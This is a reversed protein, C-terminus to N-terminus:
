RRYITTFFSNYLMIKGTGNYLPEWTIETEEIYPSDSFWATRNTSRRNRYYLLKTGELMYFLIPAGNNRSAEWLVQYVDAKVHQINPTGPPSPRDGLINIVIIICIIKHVTFFM